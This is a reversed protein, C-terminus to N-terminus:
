VSLVRSHQVVHCHDPKMKLISLSLSSRLSPPSSFLLLAENVATMWLRGTCAAMLLHEALWSPTLTLPNTSYSSDSDCCVRVCELGYVACTKEGSWINESDICQIHM